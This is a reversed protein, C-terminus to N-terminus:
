AARRAVRGDILADLDVDDLSTVVQDAGVARLLEQDDLRAVGLALMGAAKAAQVGAPADEVVLCREAPEDLATAALLFLDPAPKGRAVDRGSVDVDLLDALATEPEVGLRELLSAEAYRDVRLMALLRRANKSSSAAAVRLGHAKVGLLFRIADPLAHVEGADVLRELEAQKREAYRGALEAADPVRFYELAARAGDERPKGAVEQAYVAKTFREPAYNSRAAITRWETEMLAQLARRWSREHPSDILVGDVDFVVAEIQMSSVHRAGHAGPLGGVDRWRALRLILRAKAFRATVGVMRDLEALADALRTMRALDLRGEQIM